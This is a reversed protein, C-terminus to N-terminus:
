SAVVEAVARLLLVLGWESARLTLLSITTSSSAACAIALSPTGARATRLTKFLMELVVPALRETRTHHRSPTSAGAASVAEGLGPNGCSRSRYTTRLLCNKM